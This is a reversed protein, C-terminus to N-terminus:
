FRPVTVEAVVRGSEDSLRVPTGPQAASALLDGANGLYLEDESSMGEGAHITLAAGPQVVADDPLAASATGVQLRWGGVDVPSSGDNQISLWPTADALSADAIRLPTQPSPALAAPSPSPSPSALPPIAGVATGVISAATAGAPAAGAQLTAAAPAAAAQATAAAPSAAAVATAAAPSAGAVATAAGSQATGVAQTAVAQVTPQSPAAPASSCATLAVLAASAFVSSIGRGGWWSRRAPPASTSLVSEFYIAPKVSM